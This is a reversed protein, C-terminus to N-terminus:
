SFECSCYTLQNDVVPHGSRRARPRTGSRGSTETSSRVSRCRRGQVRYGMLAMCYWGLRRAVPRERRRAGGITRRRQLCTSSHRGHYNLRADRCASRRRRRDCIARESVIRDAARNAAEPKVLSLMRRQRRRDDACEPAVASGCPTTTVCLFAGAFMSGTSRSASTDTGFISSTGESVM